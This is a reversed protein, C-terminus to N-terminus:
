KGESRTWSTESVTHSFALDSRTWFIESVTSSPCPEGPFFPWTVSNVVTDRVRKPCAKPGHGTGKYFPVRDPCPPRPRPRRRPFCGGIGQCDGQSERAWVKGPRGRSVCGSLLIWRIVVWVGSATKPPTPAPANDTVSSPPRYVKRRLGPCGSHVMESFWAVLKGPRDQVVLMGPGCWQRCSPDLDSIDGSRRDPSTAGCQCGLAICGDGSNGRRRAFLNGIVRRASPCRTSSVSRSM